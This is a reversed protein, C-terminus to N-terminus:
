GIRETMRKRLAQMPEVSAARRADVEAEIARERAVAPNGFRLRAERRAQDASMGSAINDQMRMDIHAELEANIEREIRERRWLNRLRRLLAM